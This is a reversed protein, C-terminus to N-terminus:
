IFLFIFILVFSIFDLIIKCVYCGKAVTPPEGNTLSGVTTSPAVDQGPRVITVGPVPQGKALQAVEQWSIDSRPTAAVVVHIPGSGSTPAGAMRAIEGVTLTLPPRQITIGPETARAAGPLLVVIATVCAIIARGLSGVRGHRM